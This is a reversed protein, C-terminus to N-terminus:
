SFKEEVPVATCTDLYIIWGKVTKRPYLERAAALYAQVQARHGAPNDATSKYDIIWAERPLEILRDFVRTAGDATVVAHECFVRADEPAFFPALAPHAAIREIEARPPAEGEDRALEEVARRAEDVTDKGRLNGLRALAAHILVGRRRAERRELSPAPTIDGSVFLGDPRYERAPIVAILGDTDRADEGPRPGPAGSVMPHAPFLLPARSASRRDAKKTMFVYLEDRARTLAVYLANLEAMLTELKEEPDLAALTESFSDRHAQPKIVRLGGDAPVFFVDDREIKMVVQPVIVVPYQLGKAAHITVLRVADDDAAAVFLEKDEAATFFALFADLSSCEERREHVLALFRDVFLGQGPYRARVAYAGLFRTILEYLPVFGATTFFPEILTNWQKEWRERFAIYLYGPKAGDRRPNAAFLFDAVAAPAIGAAGTFLDGSVFAAFATNDVPSRLFQLFAIAQKILAHERLNATRESQVRYGAEILWQTYQELQDKTRGLVTIDSRRYGRVLVDKVATLVGTKVADMQDDFSEGDVVRCAVYGGAHSTKIEQLSKKFVAAAAAPAHAPLSVPSKVAKKDTLAHVFREINGAAFVTNNFTVVAERSRHNTTLSDRCPAPVLHKLDELVTDFLTSDGGRFGYIAQKRDGVYFVTGGTSLMEEAFPKFNKWQLANTDQFEDILLHRVRTALRYYVEPVADRGTGLIAQARRNFETMFLVDERRALAGLERAARRYLDIYGNFYGYADAEAWARVAFRFADWAAAAEKSPPPTKAKVEITERRWYKADGFANFTLRKEGAAMVKALGDPLYKADPPLLESVRRLAAFVGARHRRYAEVSIDPGPVYDLGDSNAKEHLANIQATITERPNWGIGTDNVLLRDLFDTFLGKLVDDRGATEILGDVSRALFGKHSEETEFRSSLGLQLASSQLLTNIFSDITQVQLWSYNALLFDMARRARKQAEARELGVAEYMADAAEASTFENFAMRRVCDIIREKMEVTAKKTFTLALIGRLPPEGAGAYAPNLLLKIFRKALEFTKGAGASAEVAILPSQTEDTTMIPQFIIVFGGRGWM